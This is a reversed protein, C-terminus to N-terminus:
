RHGLVIDDSKFRIMGYLSEYQHCCLVLSRFITKVMIAVSWNEERKHTSKNFNLFIDSDLSVSEISCCCDGVDDDVNSVRAM